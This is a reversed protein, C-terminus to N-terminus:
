KYAGLDYAEQIIRAITSQMESHVCDVIVDHAENKLDQLKKNSVTHVSLLKDLLSKVDFRVTMTPIDGGVWIGQSTPCYVPASAGKDCRFGWVPHHSGDHVDIDGSTITVYRNGAAVVKHLYEIVSKLQKSKLVDLMIARNKIM